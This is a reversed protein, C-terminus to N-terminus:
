KERRICREICLAFAIVCVAFLIILVAVCCLRNYNMNIFNNNIFHQIMYISDHPYYGGILFAERYIKYSNLISLLLTVLLVPLISPFTIHWLCQAANAGNIQAEEYYEQPIRSLAVCYILYNFGGYRFVYLFILLLFSFGSDYLNTSGTSLAESLNQALLGNEGFLLDVFLMLAAGPLLISSYVVKDFIRSMLKHRVFLIALLLPLFVIIPLAIANFVATNRIAKWFARNHMLSIYNSLGVFCGKELGSTMSYYFTKCLPYLVFLVVGLLSPLLLISGALWRHLTRKKNRNGSWKM